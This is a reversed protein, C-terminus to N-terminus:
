RIVVIIYAAEVRREDVQRRWYSNCPVYGQPWPPMLPSEEIMSFGAARLTSHAQIEIDRESGVPVAIEVTREPTIIRIVM